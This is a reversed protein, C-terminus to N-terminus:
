QLRRESLNVPHSRTSFLISVPRIIYLKPLFPTRDQSFDSYIINKNFVKTGNLFFRSKENYGYSLYRSLLGGNEWLALVRCHLNM